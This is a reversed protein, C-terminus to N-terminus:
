AFWRESAAPNHYQFRLEFVMEPKRNSGSVSAATETRGRPGFSMSRARGEDQRARRM